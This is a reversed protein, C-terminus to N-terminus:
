ILKSTALALIVPQVVYRHLQGPGSAGGGRLSIIYAMANLCHVQMTTRKDFVISDLIYYFSWTKIEALGHTLQQTELRGRVDFSM